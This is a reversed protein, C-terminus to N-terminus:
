LKQIPEDFAPGEKVLIINRIAFAGTNVIISPITQPTYGSASVEMTYTGASLQSFRYAGDESIYAEDGNETLILQLDKIESVPLQGNSIMGKIGAGSQGSVIILQGEFYFLRQLTENNKFISQADSFMFMLEDYIKNSAITIDDATQGHSKLLEQYVHLKSHFDGVMAKFGDIFTAGFLQSAKMAESHETVFSVASNLLGSCAEWRFKQSSTYFEQGLSKYHAIHQDAPWLLRVASKIKKWETLADSFSNKLATRALDQRASRKGKHPMADVSSIEALKSNVYDSTYLPRFATFKELNQKCSEWGSICVAYLERQTCPFKRNTM